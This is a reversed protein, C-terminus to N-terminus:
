TRKTKRRGKKLKKKIYIKKTRNHFSKWSEHFVVYLSNVDHFLTISDNFVIDKINKEVTLFDFGDKNKLYLNIEQPSIDINYKLLSIPRYKKSDYNMYEKLIEILHKKKLTGEELPVSSRRVFSIKNENDVYVMFLSINQIQEKYFDKYLNDMTEFDDIWNTDIEPEM